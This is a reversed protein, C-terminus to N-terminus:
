RNNKNQNKAMTQHSEITKFGNAQANKKDIM